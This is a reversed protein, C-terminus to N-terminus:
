APALFQPTQPMDTIVPAPAKAEEQAKLQAQVIAAALRGYDINQGPAQAPLTSSPARRLAVDERPAVDDEGTVHSFDSGIVHKEYAAVANFAADRELETHFPFLHLLSRMVNFFDHASYSHPQSVYDPQVVSGQILAPPNTM